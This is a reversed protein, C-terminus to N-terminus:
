ARRAEVPGHWNARLPGPGAVDLMDFVGKQPPETNANDEALMPESM